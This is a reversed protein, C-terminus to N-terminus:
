MISCGRTKRANDGPTISSPLDIQLSEAATQPFNFSGGSDTSYVSLDPQSHSRERTKRGGLRLSGRILAAKSSVSTSRPRRQVAGPKRVLGSMSMVLASFFKQVNTGDKASTEVFTCNNMITKAVNRGESTEVERCEELDCKNGVLVVTIESPDNVAAVIQHYIEITEDFSARDDVSYVLAFARCNSIYLQRMSAFQETGATDLIEVICPGVGDVQTDHRYYDEVTPNYTPTFVGSIIRLTLASKGVGGAGLLTVKYEPKVPM